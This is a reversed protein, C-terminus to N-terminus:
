LHKFNFTYDKNLIKEELLERQSLEWARWKNANEKKNPKGIECELAHKQRKWLPYANDLWEGFKTELESILQDESKKVAEFDRYAIKLHKLGEYNEKTKRVGIFVLEEMVPDFSPKNDVIKYIQGKLGEVPEEISKRPYKQKIEDNYYFM